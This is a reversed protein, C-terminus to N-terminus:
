REKTNKGNERVVYFVNIIGEKRINGSHKEAGDRFLVKYLEADQMGRQYICTKGNCKKQSQLKKGYLFVKYLEANQM